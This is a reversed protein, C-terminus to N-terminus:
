KLYYPSAYLVASTYFSVKM